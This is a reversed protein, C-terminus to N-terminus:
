RAKNETKQSSGLETTKEARRATSMRGKVRPYIDDFGYLDYDPRMAEIEPPLEISIDYGTGGIRVDPYILNLKEAAPRDKEFVVSAYVRDIESPLFNGLIVSDGNQKHWASIKMLAVNPIKGFDILGIRM